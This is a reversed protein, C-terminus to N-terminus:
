LKQTMEFDANIDALDDLCTPPHKCKSLVYIKIRFCNSDDPTVTLFISGQGFRVTNAFLKLRASKAADNTHAM